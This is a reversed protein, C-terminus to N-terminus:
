KVARTMVFSWTLTGNEHSPCKVQMKIRDGDLTGTYRNQEEGEIAFAIAGGDVKLDVLAYTRDEVSV